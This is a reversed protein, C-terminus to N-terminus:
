NQCCHVNSALVNLLLVLNSHSSSRCCTWFGACNNSPMQSEWLPFPCQTNGCVFFAITRAPTSVPPLFVCSCFWILTQAAGVAPGSILVINSPMRTLHPPSHNAARSLVSLLSELSINIIRIKQSTRYIRKPKKRRM